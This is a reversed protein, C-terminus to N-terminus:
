ARYTVSICCSKKFFSDNLTLMNLAIIASLKKVIFYHLKM